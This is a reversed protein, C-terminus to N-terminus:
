VVGHDAEPNLKVAEPILIEIEEVPFPISDTDGRTTAVEEAYARAKDLQDAAFYCRHPINRNYWNSVSLSTGGHNNGLGFTIVYYRPEGVPVYMYGDIALLSNAKQKIKAVVEARNDDVWERCEVDDKLTDCERLWISPCPHYGKEWNVSVGHWINHFPAQAGSSSWPYGSIDNTYKQVTELKVKEPEQRSVSHYDFDWLADNFLRYDQNGHKFAIPASDISIQKIEVDISDRVYVESPKRCRPKVILARYIFDVTLTAVNM